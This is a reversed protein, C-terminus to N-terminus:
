ANATAWLKANQCAAEARELLDSFSAKGDSRAYGLSMGTRLDKEKHSFLVNGLEFVISL